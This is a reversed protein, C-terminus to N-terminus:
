AAGAPGPRHLRAAEDGDRLHDPLRGRQPRAAGGAPGRARGRGLAPRAGDHRDLGTLARSLAGLAEASEPAVLVAQHAVQYAAAPQKLALQAHTMLVLARINDPEAVLVPGLLEAAAAADGRQFQAAAMAVATDGDIV